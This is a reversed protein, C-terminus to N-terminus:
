ETSDLRTQVRIKGKELETTTRDGESSRAIVTEVGVPWTVIKEASSTIKQSPWEKAKSSLRFKSNMSESLKSCFSFVVAKFRSAKGVISVYCPLNACIVSACAEIGSWMIINVVSAAHYLYASYISYLCVILILRTIAM